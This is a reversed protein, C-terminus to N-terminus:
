RGGFIVTSFRPFYHKLGQAVCIILMISMVVVPIGGWFDFLARGLGLIKSLLGVFFFVIGHLVFVPFSNKVMVKPWAASPMVSWLALAVIVIVAFQAATRWYLNQWSQIQFRWILVAVVGTVCWVLWPLRIRRCQSIFLGISFYLFNMAGLEYHMKRELFKTPWEYGMQLCWLALLSLWGVLLLVFRRRTLFVLLPSICVLIFLAKVYWLGVVVNDGWPLIGTYYFFNYLTLNMSNSADSAGFWRVAIFHIGYKIPFWLINLAFFPIVLTRVRKRIADRYWGDENVHVGLLFGSIVFFVPVAIKGLVGKIWTTIFMGNTPAHYCVVLCACVFGMNAIKNSLEDSIKRM